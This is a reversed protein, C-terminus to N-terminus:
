NLSFAFEKYVEKSVGFLQGSLHCIQAPSHVCDDSGSLGRGSGMILVNILVVQIQKYVEKSVGFLQGSLHCIQAPSHVCDDSGSLGRGSGMILM